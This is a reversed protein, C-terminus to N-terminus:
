VLAFGSGLQTLLKIDLTQSESVIKQPGEFPETVEGAGGEAACVAQRRLRQPEVGGRSYNKTTM